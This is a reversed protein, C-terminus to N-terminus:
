TFINTGKVDFFSLLLLKKSIEILRVQVLHLFEIGSL